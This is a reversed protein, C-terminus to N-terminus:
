SIDLIASALQLYTDRDSYYGDNLKEQAQEVVDHRVQGHNRFDAAHATVNTAPTRGKAELHKGAIHASDKRNSVEGHKKPQGGNISQSVLGNTNILSM